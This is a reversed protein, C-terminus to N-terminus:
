DVTFFLDPMDSSVALCFWWPTFIPLFFILLPIFYFLQCAMGALFLVSVVFHNSDIKGRFKNKDKEMAALCHRLLFQGIPRMCCCFFLSSVVLIFIEDASSNNEIQDQLIFFIFGIFYVNKAYIFRGQGVSPRADKFSAPVKVVDFHFLKQDSYFFTILEVSVEDSRNSKTQTRTLFFDTMALQDFRLSISLQFLVGLQWKWETAIFSDVEAVFNMSVSLSLSYCSLRSVHHGVDPTDM